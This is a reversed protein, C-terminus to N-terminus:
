YGSTFLRQASKLGCKQYKNYARAARLLIGKRDEKLIWGEFVDELTYAEPALLGTTWLIPNAGVRLLPKHFYQKSACALIIVDRQINEKNEPVSNLTFDMLGNHGVYVVLQAFGNIKLVRQKSNQRFSIKKKIKGSASELFDIITEKINKGRYADAVLYTESKIHKFICRELIIDSPKRIAYLFKWRKSNKFFKKVGFLAGWYLNNKPEDGNGLKPIVPVIGQNKNDCLAVLVHITKVGKCDRPLNELSSFLIILIIILVTKTRKEMM